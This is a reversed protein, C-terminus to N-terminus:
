NHNKISKHLTVQNLIAATMLTFPIIPPKIKLPLVDAPVSPILHVIIAALMIIITISNALTLLFHKQKNNKLILFPILFALGAMTEGVIGLFYSYGPLSSAEIQALYWDKFPSILKLLGFSLSVIGLFVSLIKVKKMDFSAM